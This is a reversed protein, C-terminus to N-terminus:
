SRKRKYRTIIQTEGTALGAKFAKAEDAAFRLQFALREEYTGQQGIYGLYGTLRTLLETREDPWKSRYIIRLLNDREQDTVHINQNVIMQALGLSKLIKAATIRLQARFTLAVLDVM